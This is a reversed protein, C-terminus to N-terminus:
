GMLGRRILNLGSIILVILTAMRFARQNIRDQVMFGVWIGLLAAPVVMLSLELRPRTVIGSLIHGIMFVVACLGYFVGQVRMFSRKDINLTNLYTVTPPGLIASVGGAFGAVLALGVHLPTSQRANPQWGTLLIAAFIVIVVGLILFYVSVDLAPVIQTVGIMAACVIGLYLRHDILSWWAAQPGERMAQWVNTVLTPLILVALALDPAVFVTLGTIFIMPMAFGVIGKIVGAVFGMTVIYLILLASIDTLLFDLM